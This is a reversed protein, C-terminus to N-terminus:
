KEEFNMDTKHQFDSYEDIIAWNTLDSTFDIEFHSAFSSNTNITQIPHNGIPKFAYRV